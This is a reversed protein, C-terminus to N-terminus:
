MTNKKGVMKPLPHIQAPTVNFSEVNREHHVVIPTPMSRNFANSTSLLPSMPSRVTHQPSPTKNKTDIAQSPLQEMNANVLSDEKQLDVQEEALDM